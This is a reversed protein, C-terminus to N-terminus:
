DGLEALLRQRVQGAPSTPDRAAIIAYRWRPDSQAIAALTTEVVEPALQLTLSWESSPTAGVYESTGALTALFDGDCTRRGDPSNVAAEIFLYVLLDAGVGLQDTIANGHLWSLIIRADDGPTGDRHWVRVADGAVLDAVALETVMGDPAGDATEAFHLRAWSKPLVAADATSVNRREIEHVLEDAM